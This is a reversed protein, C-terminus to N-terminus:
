KYLLLFGLAYVLNWNICVYKFTITCGFTFLGQLVSFVVV